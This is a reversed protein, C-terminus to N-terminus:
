SAVFLRGGSHGQGCMVVASCGMVRRALGKGGCGQACRAGRVDMCGCRCEKREHGGRSGEGQNIGNDIPTM